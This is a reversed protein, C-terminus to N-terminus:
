YTQNPQSTTGNNSDTHTHSNYITLFNDVMLKLGAPATMLGGQATTTGTSTINGMVLLNGQLTIDGSIQWTTMKLSGNQFEETKTQSKLNLQNNINIEADKNLNLTLKSQKKDYEITTGDEFAIHFKNNDSVPAPIVKNYYSGVVFGVDLAYPLFLCLVYEGEEPMYYFKDKLTKPQLIPLEYSVTKDEKEAREFEVRVTNKDPYRSVVKGIKLVNSTLNELNSVRRELERLLELM